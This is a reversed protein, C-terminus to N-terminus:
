KERGFFLYFLVVAIIAAIAAAVLTTVINTIGLLILIVITFIFGFLWLMISSHLIKAGNLESFPLLNFFAFWINISAFTHWGVMKSIVALVINAFIGFFAILGIEWETIESYEKGIRTIPVADFVTLALWKVYGFTLFILGIPVFLWALFPRKFYAKKRFGYRGMSWLKFETDCGFRWAIVKCTSTYGLLAILALGSLKLWELIEGLSLGATTAQMFQRFSFLYGIVLSALIFVWIENKNFM